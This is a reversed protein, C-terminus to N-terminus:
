SYPLHRIFQIYSLFELPKGCGTDDVEFWLVMKNENKCSKHLHNRHHVLKTKMPAWQKKRDVILSTEDHLSSM